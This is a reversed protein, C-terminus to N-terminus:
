LKAPKCLHTKKAAVHGCAKCYYKADRVKKSYEEPDDKHVNKRVLRCITKSM